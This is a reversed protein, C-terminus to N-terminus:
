KKRLAAYRMAIKYNQLVLDFTDEILIELEKNSLEFEDRALQMLEEREEENLDALEKPVLNIGGFAKPASMLASLFKPADTIMNIKGDELSSSIAKQLKFGFVLLEKTEKIGYM